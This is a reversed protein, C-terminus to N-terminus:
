RLVAYEDPDSSWPPLNYKLRAKAIRAFDYKQELNMTAVRDRLKRKNDFPIWHITWGEPFMDNLAVTFDQAADQIAWRRSSCWMAWLVSYTGDHPWLVYYNQAQQTFNTTSPCLILDTKMIPVWQPVRVRMSERRM